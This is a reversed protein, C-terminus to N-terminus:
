STGKKPKPELVLTGGIYRWDYEAVETILSMVKYMSSKGLLLTIQPNQAPDLKLIVNVGTKKPDRAKSESRLFAVADSFRISRFDVEEFVISKMRARTLYKGDARSDSVLTLAALTVALWVLKVNM